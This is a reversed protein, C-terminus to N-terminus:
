EFAIKVQKSREKPLSTLFVEYNQFASVGIVYWISDFRTFMFKFTTKCFVFNDIVDFPNAIGAANFGIGEAGVDGTGVARCCNNTVKSRESTSLLLKKNCFM